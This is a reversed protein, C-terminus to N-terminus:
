LKPNIIVCRNRGEGESITEVDSEEALTLHIIRREASPMPFLSQSQKSFRAKQAAALAMKELTEQRRQCYDGVNVVIRQWEGSQRYVIMAVMKQIARLTEGHYGILIGPDDVELQIKYLDDVLSLSAEAEIELHDLLKKVIKEIESTIKTEAKKVM